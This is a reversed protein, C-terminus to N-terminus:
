VVLLAEVFFERTDPETPLLHLHFLIDKVALQSSPVRTATKSQELQLSPKSTLAEQQLIHSICDWSSSLVARSPPTPSLFMRHAQDHFDLDACLCGLRLLQSIPHTRACDPTHPSTSSIVLLPNITSRLPLDQFVSLSPLTSSTTSSYFIAVIKWLLCFIIAVIKWM